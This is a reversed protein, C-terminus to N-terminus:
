SQLTVLLPRVSAGTLWETSNLWAAMLFTEPLKCQLLCTSLVVILKVEEFQLM